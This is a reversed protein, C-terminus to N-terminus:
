TLRSRSRGSTGPKGFPPGTACSLTPWWRAHPTTPSRKATRARIWALAVAALGLAYSLAEPLNEGLELGRDKDCVAWMRALSHALDHLAAAYTDNTAPKHDRM